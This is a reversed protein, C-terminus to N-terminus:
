SVETMAAPPGASKDAVDTYVAHVIMREANSFQPHCTTLTMVGALGEAVEARALGPMPNIVSVDEPLTIHRGAVHAYDGAAVRQALETPMCPAAEAARELPDDSMPMVRYTLWHTQTEVVIADCSRLRGLDNFPAGKGVRHGAVAFNGPQGPLQTDPYRGPGARLEEEDVGEIIAFQYDAGFAPIYMRAFADGLEPVTSARNVWQEELAEQADNQLGRSHLNTWFAEYFAFLLLLAGATLLIEGVVQSPSPRPRPSPSSRPRTRPAATSM